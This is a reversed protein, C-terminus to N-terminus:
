AKVRKLLNAFFFIAIVMLIGISNQNVNLVVFYKLDVWSATFTAVSFVKSGSLKRYVYGCFGFTKSTYEETCIIIRCWPHERAKHALHQRFRFHSWTCMARATKSGIRRQGRRIMRQTRFEPLIIIRYNECLWKTLKCHCEHSSLPDEQSHAVYCATT